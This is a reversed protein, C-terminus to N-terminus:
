KAPVEIARLDAPKLTVSAHAVTVGRDTKQITIQGFASPILARVLAEALELANTM